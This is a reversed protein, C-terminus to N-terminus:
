ELADARRGPADAAVAAILVALERPPRSLARLFAVRSVRSKSNSKWTGATVQDIQARTDRDAM